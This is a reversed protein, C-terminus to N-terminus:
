KHVQLQVKCLSDYINIINVKYFTEKGTRTTVMVELDFKNLDCDTHESQYTNLFETLDKIRM